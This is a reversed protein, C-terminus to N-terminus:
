GAGEGIGAQRCTEELLQIENNFKMMGEASRNLDHYSRARQGAVQLYDVHSSEALSTDHFRHTGGMRVQDPFHVFAHPIIKDSRLFFPPLDGDSSSVTDSSEDVSPLIPKWHPVRRQKRPPKDRNFREAAAIRELRKVHQLISLSRFFRRGVSGFIHRHEELTYPRLGRVSYCITQLCSIAVLVHTRLSEKLLLAKSGLAHPLVFLHVVKMEATLYASSSLKKARKSTVGDEKRFPPLGMGRTDLQMLQKPTM